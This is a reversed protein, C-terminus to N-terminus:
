KYNVIEQLSKRASAATASDIKEVHGIKIVAVVKYKAPIDLEALYNSNINNVPGTYIRSGLGLAQAGLYINQVAFGCDLEVTGYQTGDNLGSVAIIINGDKIDPIIKKAISNDKIVTFHWPQLNRASPAQVGCKLITEIDSDSIPKDIYNKFAYSNIINNLSENNNGTKKATGEQKNACSFLLGVTMLSILIINKM